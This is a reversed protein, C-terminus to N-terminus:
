RDSIRIKGDQPKRREAIDLGAMIKLRSVLARRYAAPVQLYEFCRGDVRFRIRTERQSGQPEIHIDSVRQNYADVIVQNVLRM